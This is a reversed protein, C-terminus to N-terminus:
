DLRLVAQVPEHDSPAPGLYRKSGIAATDVQIPQTVLLWDIRKGGMRPARYASFTGWAPTARVDAATWSDRLAGTTVLETFPPSGTAANADGMVIAPIDSSAVLRALMRASRLRSRASFHDLHMNIVRLPRGGHLETFEAYVAMRPILNGWSRSGAVSPTASLAFQRWTDLRLRDPDFYLPCQEGSGDANRGTGVRRFRRDLMGDIAEAQDPLAEQIGLLSPQERGLLAALLPRRREWRDPSGAGVHAMRRRINYSMVHLLPAAIPGITAEDTV